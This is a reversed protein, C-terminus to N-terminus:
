KSIKVYYEIKNDLWTNLDGYVYKVIDQAKSGMIALAKSKALNFASLMADKDFSQAKKLGDVYTQTVAAVATCVADEAVSLYKNQKVENMKAKIMAIIFASVTPLLPILLTNIIISIIDTQGTNSAEETTAFAVMTTIIMIAIIVFFISFRKIAKYM